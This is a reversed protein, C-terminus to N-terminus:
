GDVTVRDKIKDYTKKGMARCKRLESVSKFGGHSERYALIGAVRVKGLEGLALLEEETATNLNLKVGTYREQAGPYHWRCEDYKDDCLHSLSFPIGVPAHDLHRCCDKRPCEKRDCFCIDYRWLM